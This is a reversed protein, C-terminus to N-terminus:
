ALEKILETSFINASYVFSIDSDQFANFNFGDNTVLSHMKISCIRISFTILMGPVQTTVTTQDAKHAFQSPTMLNQGIPAPSANSIKSLLFGRGRGISM